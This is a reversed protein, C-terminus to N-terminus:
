GTTMIQFLKLLLQLVVTAPVIALLGAALKKIRGWRTLTHHLISAFAAM